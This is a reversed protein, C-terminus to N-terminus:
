WFNYNLGLSFGNNWSQYTDIANQYTLGSLDYSPVFSLSNTIRIELGALLKTALGVSSYGAGLQVFPYIKESNFLDKATYRAGVTLLTYTPNQKTQYKLGDSNQNQFEQYFNEQAYETYIAWNRDIKYALNLAYNAVPINSFSESKYLSSNNIARISLALKSNDPELTNDSNTNEFNYNLSRSAVLIPKHLENIKLKENALNSFSINLLPSSEKEIVRENLKNSKESFNNTTIEKNDLQIKSNPNKTSNARQNSSAQNINYDNKNSIASFQAQPNSLSVNESSKAINQTTIYTQSKKDNNETKNTIVEQRTFTLFKGLPTDPQFDINTLGFVILLIPLSVFLYSFKFSSVSAYPSSFGAGRFIKNTLEVSPAINDFSEHALKQIKLQKNFESRLESNHALESFLIEQQSEPLGDDLYDHILKEYSM